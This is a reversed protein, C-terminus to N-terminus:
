QCFAFLFGSTQEMLIYSYFISSIHFTKHLMLFCSFFRSSECFTCIKKSQMLFSSSRVVNLRFEQDAFFPQFHASVALGSLYMAVTKVEGQHRLKLDFILQWRTEAQAISIMEKNNQRQRLKSFSFFIQFDRHCFILPLAMTNLICGFTNTDIKRIVLNGKSM